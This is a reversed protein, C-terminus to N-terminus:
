LLQMWWHANRGAPMQEYDDQAGVPQDKKFRLIM